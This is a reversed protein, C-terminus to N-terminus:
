SGWSVDVTKSKSCFNLGEFYIHHTDVHGHELSATARDLVEFEVINNIVDWCSFGGDKTFTKTTKACCKINNIVDWCSFGGDKTFTTTKACCKTTEFDTWENEFTMTDATYGTISKLEDETYEVNRRRIRVPTIKIIRSEPLTPFRCVVEPYTTEIKLTFELFRLDETVPTMPHLKIAREECSQTNTQGYDDAGWGVVSGNAKLGLSHRYGAAIAVFPGDQNAAQGRNNRNNEGWGVVSGDAKLGLSHGDGAAIAVFPGAKNTNATEGDYYVGWGVVSGDAKLRLSHYVGAAIVLHQPKIQANKCFVRLM